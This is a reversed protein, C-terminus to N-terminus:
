TATTHKEGGGSFDDPKTLRDVTKDAEASIYRRIFDCDCYGHRLVETKLRVAESRLQNYSLPLQQQRDRLEEMESDLANALDRKHDRCKAAARRHRELKIREDVRKEKDLSTRRKRGRRQQDKTVPLLQAREANRGRRRGRSPNAKQQLVETRSPDLAGSSVPEDPHGQNPVPLSEQTQATPETADVVQQSTSPGSLLQVPDSPQLNDSGSLTALRFGESFPSAKTFASSPESEWILSLPSAFGREKSLRCTEQGYYVPEYRRQM